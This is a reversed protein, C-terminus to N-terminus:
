PGGALALFRQRAGLMLDLGPHDDALRMSLRRAHRVVRGPLAILGFRMAKIRRAVWQPGLVLRKMVANLNLALVM